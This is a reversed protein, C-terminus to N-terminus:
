SIEILISSSHSHFKDRCAFVLCFHRGRPFRRAHVGKGLQVPFFCHWSWLSFGFLILSSVLWVLDFLVIFWIFGVFGSGFWASCRAILSCAFRLRGLQTEISDEGKGSFRVLTGKEKYSFFSPLVWVVVSPIYCPWLTALVPVARSCSIVPM